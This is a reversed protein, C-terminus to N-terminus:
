VGFVGGCGWFGRVTKRVTKQIDKKILYIYEELEFKIPCIGQLCQSSYKTEPLYENCEKILEHTM